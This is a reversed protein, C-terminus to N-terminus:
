SAVEKKQCVLMMPPLKSDPGEQHILNWGSPCEVSGQWIQLRNIAMLVSGPSAAELTSNISVQETRFCTLNCVANVKFPAKLYHAAIHGADSVYLTANPDIHDKVWRSARLFSQGWYDVAYQTWAHYTSGAFINFYGSQYPHIRWATYLPTTLGLLLVAYALRKSWFSSIQVRHLLSLGGQAALLSMPGYSELFHRVGDYNGFGLLHKFVATSWLILWLVSAQTAGSRDQIVKGVGIGWCVLIWLPTSIFWFWPAYYIPALGVPFYRGAFWLETKGLGSYLYAHPNTWLVHVFVSRQWLFPNALKVTLFFVVLALLPGWWTLSPWRIKLIWRCVIFWLVMAVGLFYVNPARLSFAIGTLLGWLAYDQLRPRKAQSIRWAAWAAWLYGAAGPLDSINYHADPWLRPQLIWILLALSAGKNGLTQKGWVLIGLALLVAFGVNALHYGIDSSVWQLIEHFWRHSAASVLSPLSGYYFHYSEPLPAATPHLIRDWQAHGFEFWGIEDWTVGYDPLTVFLFISYCLFLLYPMWGHALITETVSPRNMLKPLRKGGKSLGGM